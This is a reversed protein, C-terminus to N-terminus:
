RRCFQFFFVRAIADPFKAFGPRFFFPARSALRAERFNKENKEQKQRKEFHFDCFFDFNENKLFNLNKVIKRFDKFKEIILWIM